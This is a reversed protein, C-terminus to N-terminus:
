QSWAQVPLSVNPRLRFRLPIGERFRMVLVRGKDEVTLSDVGGFFLDLRM